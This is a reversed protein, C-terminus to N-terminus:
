IILRKKGFLNILQSIITVSFYMDYVTLEIFDYGKIFGYGILFITFLFALTDLINKAIIRM